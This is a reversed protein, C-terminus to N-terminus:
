TNKSDLHERPWDRTKKNKRVQQIKQLADFKRYIVKKEKDHRWLTTKKYLKKYLTHSLDNQLPSTEEARMLRTAKRKKEMFVILDKTKLIERYKANNRWYKAKHGM